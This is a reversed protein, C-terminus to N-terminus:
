EAVPLVWGNLRFGQDVSIVEYGVMGIIQSILDIMRKAETDDEEFLEALEAAFEPDEAEIEALQAKTQMQTIESSARMTEGMKAVSWM